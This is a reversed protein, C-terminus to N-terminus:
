RGRKARPLADLLCRTFTLQTPVDSPTDDGMEIAFQRHHQIIRGRTQRFYILVFFPFVIFRIRYESHIPLTISANVAAPAGESLAFEFPFPRPLALEWTVADAFPLVATLSPPIARACCLTALGRTLDFAVTLRALTRGSRPRVM